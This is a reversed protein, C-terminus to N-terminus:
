PLVQPFYRGKLLEGDAVEVFPKMVHEGSADYRTEETMYHIAIARRPGGSTNAHSAHWTMGHHYHVEGKRVPCRLAQVKHGNFEAPLDEFRNLKQQLFEIQDGWRYSGSVMSMCGNSEDADDLAMWATVQTKPYLIPWLPADQHWRNVGGVEPPKYQIQDHWVRLETARTLQAIEEVIKRNRLLARFADSVEWINVIQWVLKNPASTANRQLLPQTTDANDRNDIVRALERRLVEVQDGDLVLGGNLFGKEDFEGVQAETLM